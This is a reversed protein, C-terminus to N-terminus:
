ASPARDPSVTAHGLPRAGGALGTSDALQGMALGGGFLLVIGWDIRSADEWTMTFTRARWNIPMLFLVARRHPGRDVRSVAHQAARGIPHTQGLIAQALGPVVWLAVTVGFALIVNREGVTVPGLKTLEEQM